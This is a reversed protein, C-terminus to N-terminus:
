ADGGEREREALPANLRALAAQISKKRWGRAFPRPARYPADDAHWVDGCGICTTTAGYWEFFETVAPAPQECVPCDWTRVDRCVPRAYCIHVRSM